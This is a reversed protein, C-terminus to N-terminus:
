RLRIRKINGSDLVLLTKANQDIFYNEINDGTFIPYSNQTETQDLELATLTNKKNFFAYGISKAIKPLTISESLRTILRNNAQEDFYRLEGSATFILTNQTQEFDWGNLNESERVLGQTSITYISGDALIFIRKRSDILIEAQKFVPFDSALVQKIGSHLDLSNLEYGNKAQALYYIVEGMIQASEVKPVLLELTSNELNIAYLSAQTLAVLRGSETVYFIPLQERSGFLAKLDFLKGSRSDFLALSANESAPINKYFLFKEAGPFVLIKSFEQKTKIKKPNSLSWSNFLLIENELLGLAGGPWATFDKVGALAVVPEQNKLFLHIKNNEPNAWTVKNPEVLLNKNWDFYGPKRVSAQYTKAELFRIDGSATRALKGDLYIEAELPDTKLSLIGTQIFKKEKFDFKLGRVFLVILPAAALFFVFGAAIISYRIRKDM